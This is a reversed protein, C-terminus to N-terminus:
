HKLIELTDDPVGSKYNITLGRFHNAEVKISKSIWALGHVPRDPRNWRGQDNSTMQHVAVFDTPRALVQKQGAHEIM